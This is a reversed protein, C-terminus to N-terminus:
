QVAELEALPAIRITGDDTYGVCLVVDLWEEATAYGYRVCATDLAELRNGERVGLVVSGVIFGVIVIVFVLAWWDGNEM